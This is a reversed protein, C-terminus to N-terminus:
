IGGKVIAEIVEDPMRYAKKFCNVMYGINEGHISMSDPDEVAFEDDPSNIVVFAIEDPGLRFFANYKPSANRYVDDVTEIVFYSVYEKMNDYPGIAVKFQSKGNEDTVISANDSIYTHPYVKMGLELRDMDDDDDEEKMSVLDFDPASPIGGCIEKTTAMESIDPHFLEWFDEFDYDSGNDVHIYYNSLEFDNKRNYEIIKSQIGAKRTDVELAGDFERMARVIMKNLLYEYALDFTTLASGKDRKAYEVHANAEEKLRQIVYDPTVEHEPIYININGSITKYCARAMTELIEIRENM